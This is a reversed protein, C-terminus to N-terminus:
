GNNNLAISVYYGCDHKHSSGWDITQGNLKGVHYWLRMDDGSTMHMEVVVGSDNLAVVPGYGKDYKIHSGWSITQNEADVTGAHYMLHDPHDKPHDHVEVVARQNNIAISARSGDSIKHSSGWIIEDTDTNISGVHYWNYIDNGSESSHIEVVVGENNISIAPDYGKDYKISKGWNVENSM